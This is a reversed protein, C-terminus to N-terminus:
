DEWSNTTNRSASMHLRASEVQEDSLVPLDIRSSLVDGVHVTQHAVVTDASDFITSGTNPNCDWRPFNSSTVDVRLRHGAAFTHATDLLSIRVEVDQDQVPPNEAGHVYEGDLTYSNRASLRVIGDMVLLARGDPHVDSLTVVFDTDVADTRVTLTAVVPGVVHLPAELVHSCFSVVDSRADNANQARPGEPYEASMLQAGGRTPVPDRPDYEFSVSAASEPAATSLAGGDRLYWSQVASPAPPYSAFGLWTNSGMLYLRVPPLDDLASENGKLTADFWRLIQGTLPEDQLPLGARANLGFIAEGLRYDSMRHSWPGVVLHPVRTGRRRAEDATGHYQAVTSGLFCDFWGGVLFVPANVRDYKGATMATQRSPDAPDLTFIESGRGLEKSRKAVEESFPRLTYVEGEDVLRQTREFRDMLEALDAGPHARRAEEFSVARHWWGIRNGFENVGGRMQYGNFHSHSPSNIPIMSRLQPAGAIAASWQTEAAYSMGWMGVIGNCGPLAAAWAVSDAGDALENESPVFVGDSTYRGRVDQVIVIYGARVVRMVDVERFLPARSKSYPHRMLVAPVDHDVVPAYVDARLTVGDRMTAPIDLRVSVETTEVQSM